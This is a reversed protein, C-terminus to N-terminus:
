VQLLSVISYEFLQLRNPALKMVYSLLLGEVRAGVHVDGGGGDHGVLQASDGALRAVFM